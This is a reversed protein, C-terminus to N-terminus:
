TLNQCNGLVSVDTLSDCDALSLSTLNQCNGLVSVDTLSDCGEFSLTTLNQCNGLGSIDLSDCWSISIETLNQCNGLPSIDKLVECSEIYLTTLNPISSLASIDTLIDDDDSSYLELSTLNRCNALANINDNYTSLSLEKLSTFYKFNESSVNYFSEGFTEINKVDGYTIDREHIGTFDRIQELMRKDVFSIVYDDSWTETEATQATSKNAKNEAKLEELEQELEAIRKADSNDGSTFKVDSASKDNGCASLCAALAMIIILSITNKKM